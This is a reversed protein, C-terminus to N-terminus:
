LGIIRFHRLDHISLAEEKANEFLKRLGYTDLIYPDYIAFAYRKNGEVFYLYQMFLGKAEDYYYPHKCRKLKGEKLGFLAIHVTTPLCFKQIKDGLEGTHPFKAKYALKVRENLMASKYYTKRIDLNYYRHAYDAIEKVKRNYEDEYQAQWFSKDNEHIPRLSIEDGHRTHLILDLPQPSKYPFSPTPEYFSQFIGDNDGLRIEIYPESFSTNYAKYEIRKRFNEEQIFESIPTFGGDPIDILVHTSKDNLSNVWPTLDVKLNGYKMPASFAMAYGGGITRYSVKLTDLNKTEGSQNSSSSNGPGEEDRPDDRDDDQNRLYSSKTGTEPKPGLKLDSASVHISAEITERLDEELSTSEVNKKSTGEFLVDAKGGAIYRTIVSPSYIGDTSFLKDFPRNYLNDLFSKSLYKHQLDNDLIPSRDLTYRADQCLVNLVGRVQNKQYEVHKHFIRSFTKEYGIKFFLIDFGVKHTSTYKDVIDKILSEGSAFVDYDAKTDKMSLIEVGRPNEKEFRDIDFIQRKFCEQDGIIGHEPNYTFGIYQDVSYPIASRLSNEKPTKCLIIPAEQSRAYILEGRPDETDKKPGQESTCAVLNLLLLFAGLYQLLLHEIIRKRM